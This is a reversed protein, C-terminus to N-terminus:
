TSNRHRHLRPEHRVPGPIPLAGITVGQPDVVAIRWMDFHAVYLNGDAGFAIGDPEGPRGDPGIGELQAYIWHEGASGDPRLRYAHIRQTHSEAVLLTSWDATFALGNPYALGSAFRRVHGDPTAWYVCGVPNAPPRARRIPGTSTATAASACTTRASSRSATRRAATPSSGAPRRGGPVRM